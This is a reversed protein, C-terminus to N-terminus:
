RGIGNYFKTNLRIMITNLPKYSSMIEIYIYIYICFIYIIIYIM